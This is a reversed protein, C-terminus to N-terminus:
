SSLVQFSGLFQKAVRSLYGLTVVFVIAVQRKLVLIVSVSLAREPPYFPHAVM